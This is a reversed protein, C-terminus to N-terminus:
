VKQVKPQCSFNVNEQEQANVSVNELESEGSWGAGDDQWNIELDYTDDM